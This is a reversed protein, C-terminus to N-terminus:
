PGVCNEVPFLCQQGMPMDAGGPATYYVQSVIANTLVVNVECVRAPLYPQPLWNVGAAFFFADVHMDGIPYSRIETSGVVKRRAPTGLCAKIKARSLGIMKQQVIQDVEAWSDARAGPSQVFFAITLAALLIKLATEGLLLAGLGNAFGRAKLPHGYAQSRAIV